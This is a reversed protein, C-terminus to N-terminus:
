TPNNRGYLDVLLFRNCGGPTADAFIPMVMAPCTHERSTIRWGPFIGNSVSAIGERNWLRHLDHALGFGDDTARMAGPGSETLAVVNIHVGLCLPVPPPRINNHETSPSTPSEAKSARLRRTESPLQEPEVAVQGM